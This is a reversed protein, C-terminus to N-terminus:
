RSYCLVSFPRIHTVIFNFSSPFCDLKVTSHIGYRNISTPTRLAPVFHLRNKHQSIHCYSPLQPSLTAGTCHNNMQLFIFNWKEDVSELYILSKLYLLVFNTFIQLFFSVEPGSFNEQSVFCHNYFIILDVKSDLYKTLCTSLSSRNVFM